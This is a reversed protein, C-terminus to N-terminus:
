IEILLGSNFNKNESDETHYRNAYGRPNCVVRTNDVMYDFSDHTHGHFWFDPKLENMLKTQDSCYYANLDDKGWKPHVSNPHCGMHTVVVRKRTPLVNIEQEIFEKIKKHEEFSKEPTFRIWPNKQYSILRFDNIGERAASMAIKQNNYLNYDSWFTGGIFLVDNIVVASNNLLNINFLECQQEIEETTELFYHRYFEHNGPLYVIPVDNGFITRLKAPATPGVSIDGAAVVVDTDEPAKFPYDAFELHLDSVLHVKM